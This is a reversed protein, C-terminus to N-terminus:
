LKIVTGIRGQFGPAEYGPLVYYARNLINLGKFYFEVSKLSYSFYLNLLNYDALADKWNNAAYLDQIYKGYIKIGFKKYNSFLLYKIQHKPNYATIQDPDLYSYSLMIGTNKILM